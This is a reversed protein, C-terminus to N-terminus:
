IHPAATTLTLMTSNASSSAPSRNEALLLLDEACPLSEFSRTLDIVVRPPVARLLVAADAHQQRVLRLTNASDPNSTIQHIGEPCVNPPAIPSPARGDLADIYHRSEGSGGYLMYIPSM